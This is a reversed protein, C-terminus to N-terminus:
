ATASHADDDEPGKRVKGILLFLYLVFLISYISTFMIISGIVQQANVSESLADKTRLLGQVVWPQRGVETAMWGVINTFIPAPIAFVLLWLLWRKDFLEGRWGYYAGGLVLAMMAFGLGIMAHFAFFPVVVPPRDEQPFSDLAPIPKTFSHYILLSIAYPIKIGYRVQAQQEDPWGLVYFPTAEHETKFHAEMAALKAPQTDVMQRGQHDGAGIVLLMSIVSAALGITLNRKALDGHKGKLVWWAAIGTVFFSGTALAACVVHAYRSMASPNFFMALFNTIEAHLNQGEGVLHFGAPTHQWSNAVIIWLASLTAGLAVMLTSVFHTRASVRKWGFLLIGLFTSELFFSFLAEAALPAGFVDGVFRSYAAWNTGFEFEMVIGTSVGMAFTLAFVRTWFQAMREYMPNRTRLFAGEMVVMLWGLGISVPPYLFHFSATLAFQIRSLMEVNLSM